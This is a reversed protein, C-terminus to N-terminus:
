SGQSPAHPTKDLSEVWCVVSARRLIPGDRGLRYGTRVVEKILGVKKPDDTAVSSHLDHQAIDFAHDKEPFYVLGAASGLWDRVRKEVKKLEDLVSQREPPLPTSSDPPTWEALADELIRFLGPLHEIVRLRMEDQRKTEDGSRQDLVWERYTNLGAWLRKPALLETLLSNAFSEATGIDFLQQIRAAANVAIGEFQKALRACAAETSQETTAVAEKGRQAIGEFQKLLEACAARTQQVLKWSEADLHVQIKGLVTEQLSKVQGLV